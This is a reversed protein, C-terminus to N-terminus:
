EVTHHVNLLAMKLGIWGIVDTQKNPLEAQLVLKTVITNAVM